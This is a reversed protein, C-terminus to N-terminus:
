QHSHLNTSNSNLTTHINRLFSFTSSGCSGTVGSRLIYASVTFVRSQLSVQVGTNIAASNVIGLVHFGSLHRDTSSQSSFIHYLYVM